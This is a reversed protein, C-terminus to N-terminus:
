SFLESRLRDVWPELEAVPVVTVQVDALLGAVFQHHENGAEPRVDTVVTFESSALRRRIREATYAVIKAEAADREISLTHVFGRTGRRRYAFDIRLPDGKYTFEDVAVQREIQGALGTRRFVDNLRSRLYARGFDQEHGLASARPPAVHKQYLRDLEADFDETLVGREPSLEIANSLTETLNALYAAPDEASAVATQFHSELARLIREDHNPQLRRLRSFEGDTEIFRSRFRSGTPDFLLVGVNIWEDRLLNATYRVVWYSCPTMFPETM